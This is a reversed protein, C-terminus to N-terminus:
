LVVLLVECKADTTTEIEESVVGENRCYCCKTKCSIADLPNCPTKRVPYWVSVFFASFVVIVVDFIVLNFLFNSWGKMKSSAPGVLGTFFLNEVCVPTAGELCCVAAWGEESMTFVFDANV